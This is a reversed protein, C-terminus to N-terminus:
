VGQLRKHLKAAHQPQGVYKTLNKEKLLKFYAKIAGKKKDEEEKRLREEEAEKEQRLREEEAKKREQEKALKEAEAKAQKEELKIWEPLKEQKTIGIADAYEAFIEQFKENKLVEPGSKMAFGVRREDMPIDRPYDYSEVSGYTYEGTHWFSLLGLVIQNVKWAPNWSEPHLNSVSLCIGDTQQHALKFKGNETLMNIKPAKAPYDAPCEINGLYFGGKYPHEEIGFIVYYWKYPDAPDPLCIFNDHIKGHKMDVCHPM